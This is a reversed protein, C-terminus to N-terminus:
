KEKGFCNLTCEGFEGGVAPQQPCGHMCTHRDSVCLKCESTFYGGSEVRWGRGRVGSGWVLWFTTSCRLLSSRARKWCPALDRVSQRVPAFDWLKTKVKSITLPEGHELGGKLTFGWPAGGQLQVHIHQCISVAERSREMIQSQEPNWWMGM